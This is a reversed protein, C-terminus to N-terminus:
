YEEAAVALPETALPQVSEIRENIVVSRGWNM